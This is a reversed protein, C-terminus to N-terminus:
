KQETLRQADELARFMAKAIRRSNALEQEVQELRARLGAMQQGQNGLLEVYSKARQDARRFSVQLSAYSPKLNKVAKM